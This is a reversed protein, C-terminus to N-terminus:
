SAAVLLYLVNLLAHMVGIVLAGVPLAVVLPMMAAIVAPMWAARRQERYEAHTLARTLEAPTTASWGAAAALGTFSTASAGLASEPLRASTGILLLRAALRRRTRRWAWNTLGGTVVLLVVFAGALLPVFWQNVAYTYRLMPTLPVGLEYFIQSYKPFVFMTIFLMLAGLAFLQALAFALQRVMLSHVPPRAALGAAWVCFAEPGQGLARAAQQRIAAPLIRSNVLVQAPDVGAALQDAAQSLRGPWPWPLLLRVGRLVPEWPQRARTAIVLREVVLAVMAPSHLALFWRVFAVLIQWLLLGTLLSGVVTLVFLFPSTLDHLYM